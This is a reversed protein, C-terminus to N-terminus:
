GTKIHREFVYKHEYIFSWCIQFKPLVNIEQGLLTVMPRPTVILHQMKEIYKNAHLRKILKPGIKVKGILLIKSTIIRSVQQVWLNTTM